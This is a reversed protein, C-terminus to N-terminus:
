RKWEREEVFFAGRMWCPVGFIKEIRIIVGYIAVFLSMVLLLFLSLYIFIM